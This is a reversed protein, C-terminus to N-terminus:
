AVLGCQVRLYQSVGGRQLQQEIEEATLRRSAVGRGHIVGQVEAVISLAIAEPGDGGLDMGIPACVRGCCRTVDCGLLAAAEAILLSSRHRSGLLGLYRPALPLVRVLLDRDQEYSHTMVVVADRPRIDLDAGIVSVSAGPFREATALQARGDAVVVSWGMGTAMRVLPRADDGAGLIILRQPSELREVFRGEYAQGPALARACAIKEASVGPSVFVVDGAPGLILRRLGRGGGPLFSIVTSENGALSQQMARMLAEGEPTGLPEFLLDVTGGCGLGFPIEETDDFAMSYREIAAGNRTIWAAKKVVDSELCGGSITGAYDQEGTVLRAGRQRYSSGEVAALTVLVGSRDREWFDVLQRREMM